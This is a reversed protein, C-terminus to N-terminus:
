ACLGDSVGRSCLVTREVTRLTFGEDVPHAFIRLREGAVADDPLGLIDVTVEGLDGVTPGDSVVIRPGQGESADGVRLQAVAEALQLMTEASPRETLESTVDTTEGLYALYRANVWGDDVAGGDVQYWYGSDVIRARGTATVGDALPDLTGLVAGDTGPADRVNLEDGAAVGVVALTAGRAPGAADEGPPDAAGGAETVPSPPSAPPTPGVAPSTTALDDSPASPASPSVTPSAADEVPAAAGNGACGMAVTALLAAM